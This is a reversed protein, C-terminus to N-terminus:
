SNGGKEFKTLHNLSAQHQQQSYFIKGARGALGQAKGQRQLEATQESLTEKM